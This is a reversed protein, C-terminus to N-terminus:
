RPLGLSGAVGVQGDTTIRREVVVPSTAEIALPAEAAGAVEGSVDVSVSATAKVTVHTASALPVPGGPTLLNVTVIADTGTLNGIVITEHRGAATSGDAFWWRNSGVLSGFVSTIGATGSAASTDVV